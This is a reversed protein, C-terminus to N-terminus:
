RAVTALVPVHHLQSLQWTEVVRKRRLDLAVCAGAAVITGFIVTLAMPVKQRGLPATPLEAPTLELYRQDFSTQAGILNLEARRLSSLADRQESVADELGSGVPIPDLPGLGLKAREEAVRAEASDAQRQLITVADNLPTVELAKRSDFFNQESAKAIALAQQADPWMVTIHVTTKDSAVGVFISDKLKDRLAGRKEEESQAGPVSTLKDKIKAFINRPPDRDMLGTDDILKNLVEQRTLSAAISNRVPDIQADVSPDIAHWLASGDQVLISVDSQYVPDDSLLILSGAFLGFFLAVAAFAKHRLISHKAFRLWRQVPELTFLKVDDLPATPTAASVARPVTATRRGPRAAPDPAAYLRPDAVGLDVVIDDANPVSRAAPALSGASAATAHPKPPPKRPATDPAAV